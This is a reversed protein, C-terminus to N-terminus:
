NQNLPSFWDMDYMFEDSENETWYEQAKKINDNIFNWYIAATFDKSSMPFEIDLTDAISAALQIQKDSPCKSANNIMVATGHECDWCVQRGEPVPMGCCICVDVNSM